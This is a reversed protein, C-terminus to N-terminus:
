ADDAYLYQYGERFKLYSKKWLHIVVYGEMLLRRCIVAIPKENYMSNGKLSLQEHAVLVGSGFIGSVIVSAHTLRRQAFSKVELKFAKHTIGSAVGSYGSPLASRRSALDRVERTCTIAEELKGEHALVNAAVLM